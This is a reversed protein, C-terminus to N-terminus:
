RPTPIITRVTSTGKIRYAKTRADKDSAGKGGTTDVFTSKGVGTMNRAPIRRPQLPQKVKMSKM